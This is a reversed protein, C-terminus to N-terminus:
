KMSLISMVDNLQEHLDPTLGWRIASMKGNYNLAFENIAKSGAAQKLDIGTSLIVENVLKFLGVDSETKDIISHIVERQENAFITIATDSDGAAFGEKMIQKLEGVGPFQAGNYKESMADRVRMGQQRIHEIAQNQSALGAPLNAVVSNLKVLGFLAHKLPDDTNPTRDVGHKIYQQKMQAVFEKEKGAAIFNNVVREFMPRLTDDYGIIHRRDENLDRKKVDHRVKIRKAGTDFAPRGIITIVGNGTKELGFKKKVKSVKAKTIGNKPAKKAKAAIKGTGEPDTYILPNSGVYEYLNLGDIPGAPDASIWRGLWSIYYRAGYYYLGSSDDCEKGTFRYEKLQVDVQNDGAIISTGGYPYYEEYTIIDGTETVEISVSHVLNDLQYRQQRQGQRTSSVTWYLMNAICRKDDAIREIQCESILNAPDITNNYIRKVVYNGVYLKDYVLNLTGNVKQVTVKRVRQGAYDYVYYDSDNVDPRTIVPIGSINNRYNWTIGSLNNVRLMNGDADFSDQPEDSPIAHNSAAPVNMKRTWSASKARHSIMVLNGSDDYSYDETYNELQQVDNPSAKPCLQGYISQKFGDTHTNALIGIHQRGSASSLRYVADYSYDQMPEVQQNNCFVEEQSYDRSRTVNGAPDYAYWINQIGAPNASQTSVLNMLHETTNEYSYSTTTNGAYQISLRKGCEDYTIANVYTQLTKSPFIGTVSSLQNLQNYIWNIQGNDPMQEWTVLGAANYLFKTVFTEPGVSVNGPDNWNVEQSYQQLFQRTQQLLKGAFSYNNNVLTGAQEYYTYIRGVLNKQQADTILEGYVIRETYQNLSLTGDTGTVFVGTLRQLHDYERRICFGRSDWALAANGYMDYFAQRLGADCSQSKSPKDSVMDFVNEFNYNSTQSRCNSYYLRPDTLQLPRGGIDPVTCTILGNERFFNMLAPAFQQYPVDLAFDFAPNYVQVLSSTWAGDQPYVGTVLYNKSLLEDWLQKSTVGSGDVIDAFDGPAIQGLNNTISYFVRGASDMIEIGPTNYFEFAKGLADKQDKQQDTPNSPYNAMFTQYFVSDRVTDDTDYHTTEWASVVVSSFFQKPTDIRIERELPDYHTIEPTVAGGPPIPSHSEYDPKDSYTPLYQLAPKRKNNYIVRGSVIWSKGGSGGAYRKHQTLEGVGDFYSIDILVTRDAPDINYGYQQGELLISRVPQPGSGTTCPPLSNGEDYFYFSGAGQLYRSPNNLVDCFDKVHWNLYTSLDADGAYVGNEYGNSGSVFVRGLPDFLVQAVSQNLGNLQRPAVIYYDILASTTNNIVSGDKLATVYQNVQNERLYYTDYSITTKSYLPSSSPFFSNETMSPMYFASPDTFYWQVLGRNWWYGGDSYYGGIGIITATDLKTDYAQSIFDVDFVATEIHHCLLVAPLPACLSLVATQGTNWYYTRSAKIGRAQVLGSQFSHSYPIINGLATEIFNSITAFSFYQGAAISVGGVQYSNEQCPVGIWRDPTEQNIYSNTNITIITQQQQPYVLVGPDANNRRPYNVTCNRLPKGYHDTQLIFTHTIRPDAPDREYHYELIEQEYATFISGAVPSAKQFSKVYYCYQEAAYPNRDAASGDLGYIERRLPRGKLISLAKAIVLPDQETIIPDLVFAALSCADTDGKFYQSEYKKLILDSDKFIGPLFWERTYAPPVYLEDNIATVLSRESISTEYRECDWSEVYGFGLFKRQSSDYCGEHYSFERTVTSKSISDTIIMKSVVQVPFPLNTIWANGKKKDELYFQVSSSYRLVTTGGIGNDILHMLYPKVGQADPDGPQLSLFDHYYHTVRPTTKTFVLCSTGNGNIDAFSVEDLPTFIDPLPVILAPAFTNGSQNIYIEAQRSYVLIIDATGSGDIDALLITPQESHRFAPANGFRIAPGFRGFGLSPWVTVAGNSIRVRHQQGDGFIDAFCIQTTPSSSPGPLGTTKIRLQPSDFGDLGLSRFYTVSDQEIAVMDNKGDGNLDAIEFEANISMGPPYHAFPVFNNWHRQRNDSKTYYGCRGNDNVVLELQGNGDIDGLWTGPLALNRDSPFSFPTEAFDYRGSGRPQWYLIGDQNSMMFGPLGEGYLDVPMFGSKNLEGPLEGEQEIVFKAFAPAPSPDFPTYGFSSVPSLSVWFSGDTNARYGANVASVLFSFFPTEDHRIILARVLMPVTGLEPFKHFLMIGRCLRCTRIEYGPRFVSFCDKRAPWSRVPQYPSFGQQGDAPLDYEGYNFILEFAWQEQQNNDFYNGYQISQPYLQSTYDHDKSYIHDQVGEDNERKYTYLIKNGKCDTVSEILWKCIETSFLPNYIKADNSKGLVTVVNDSSITKWFVNGTAEDLWQEALTFAGEEQQLFCTVTWTIYDELKHSIAYADDASSSALAVLEIGDNFAYKKDQNYVPVGKNMLVGIYVLDIDFGLGFASNGRSSEYTLQLQPELGRAATVPIPISYSGTGSFPNSQFADGVGLVAGGGKPLSIEQVSVKASGTNKKGGPM